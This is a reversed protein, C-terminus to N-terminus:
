SLQYRLPLIRLAHLAQITYIYSKTCACKQFLEFLTSKYDSCEQRIYLVTCHAKTYICHFYVKSKIAILLSVPFSLMHRIHTHDPFLYLALNLLVQRNAPAVTRVKRGRNLYCDACEVVKETLARAVVCWKPPFALFRTGVHLNVRLREINTGM